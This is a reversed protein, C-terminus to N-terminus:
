LTSVKHHGRKISRMKNAGHNQSVTSLILMLVPRNKKRVKSQIMVRIETM